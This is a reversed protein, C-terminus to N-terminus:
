NSEQIPWGQRNAVSGVVSAVGQDLLWSPLSSTWAPEVARRLTRKPPGLRLCALPHPLAEPQPDPDQLSLARQARSGGVRRARRSSRVLGFAELLAARTGRPPGPLHRRSSHEDSRMPARPASGASSDGWPPAGALGPPADRCGVPPPAGQQRPPPARPTTACGRGAPGGAGERARTPLPGARAPAPRVSPAAMGVRAPRRGPALSSLLRSRLLGVAAAKRPHTGRPAPPVSRGPPRPRAAGRPGRVRGVGEGGKGLSRPRVPRPHGRADRPYSLASRSRRRGSPSRPPQPCGVACHVAQPSGARRHRPPAQFPPRPPPLPGRFGGGKPFTPSLQQKSRAWPRLEFGLLSM